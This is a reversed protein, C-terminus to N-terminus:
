ELSSSNETGVVALGPPPEGAAGIAGREAYDAGRRSTWRTWRRRSVFKILMRALPWSRGISMMTTAPPSRRPSERRM